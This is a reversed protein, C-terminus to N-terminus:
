FSLYRQFWFLYKFVTFLMNRRVSAVQKHKLIAAIPFIHNKDYHWKLFFSPVQKRNGWDFIIDMVCVEVLMFLHKVFTSTSVIISEKAKHMLMM